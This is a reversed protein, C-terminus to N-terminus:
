PGCTLLSSTRCRLPCTSKRRSRHATASHPAQRCRAAAAAAHATEDAGGDAAATAAAVVVDVVM